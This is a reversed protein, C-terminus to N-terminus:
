IKGKRQLYFNLLRTMANLRLHSIKGYELIQLGIQGYLLKSENYNKKLSLYKSFNKKYKKKPPFHKM